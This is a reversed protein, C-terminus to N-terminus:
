LYMHMSYEKSVYVLLRDCHNSRPLPTGYRYSILSAEKGRNGILYIMLGHMDM